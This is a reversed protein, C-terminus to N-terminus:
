WGERVAPAAPAADAKQAAERLAAVLEDLEKQAPAGYGRLIEIQQLVGQLHAEGLYERARPFEPKLDLAKKYNAFAEELRGAKRQCYALLNLADANEPSDALVDVLLSTAKRCDGARASAEAQEFPSADNTAGGVPTPGRSMAAFSAGAALTVFLFTAFLRKMSEGM